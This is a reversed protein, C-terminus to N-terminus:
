AIDLGQRECRATCRSPPIDHEIGESQHQAHEPNETHDCRERGTTQEVDKEDDGHDHDDKLDDATAPDASPPRNFFGGFGGDSWRAARAGGSRLQHGASPEFFALATGAYGFAALIFEPDV